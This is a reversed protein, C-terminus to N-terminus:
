PSINPVHRGDEPNWTQINQPFQMKQCCVHRECHSENWLWPSWQIGSQGDRRSLCVLFSRHSPCEPWIQHSVNGSFLSLQHFHILAGGWNQCQSCPRWLQDLDESALRSVAKGAQSFQKRRLVAASSPIQPCRVSSGCLSTFSAAGMSPHAKGDRKVLLGPSCWPRWFFVCVTVQIPPVKHLAASWRVAM